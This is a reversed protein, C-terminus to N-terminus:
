SHKYRKKFKSNLLQQKQSQEITKPVVSLQTSM